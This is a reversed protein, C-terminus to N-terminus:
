GRKFDNTSTCRDFLGLVVNNQCLQAKSSGVRITDGPGIVKSYNASSFKGRKSLLVRYSYGDYRAQFRTDVGSASESLKGSWKVGYVQASGRKGNAVDFQYTTSATTATGRTFTGINHAALANAAASGGIVSGIAIVAALARRKLSNM